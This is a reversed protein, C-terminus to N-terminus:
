YNKVQLDIYYISDYYSDDLINTAYLTFNDTNSPIVFSLNYTNFSEKNILLPTTARYGSADTLSSILCADSLVNGDADTPLVQFDNTYLYWNPVESSLDINVDVSETGDGLETVTVDNLRFALGNEMHIETNFDFGQSARGQIYKSYNNFTAGRSLGSTPILAVYAVYGNDEVSATISICINDKTLYQTAEGTEQYQNSSYDEEYTFGNYDQLMTCYEDLAGYFDSDYSTGAYFQYTYTAVGDYSYYDYPVFRSDSDLSLVDPLESYSYYYHYAYEGSTDNGSGADVGGDIKTDMDTDTDSDFTDTTEIDSSVIDSSIHAKKIINNGIFFLAIIGIGLFIFASVVIIIVILATNKKKPMVQPYPMNPMGPAGQMMPGPIPPNLPMGYPATQNYYKQNQPMPYPPLQNNMPQNHPPLQNNLPQNQPPLQNNMPQNQPPLQSNVPQNQPPLQNDMPQNQPPLQYSVPHSQQEPAAMIPILDGGCVKCYNLEEPFEINCKICKKTNEVGGYIENKTGCDPCFLYDETLEKGCGKCIM